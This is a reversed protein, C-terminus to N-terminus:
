QLLKVPIHNRKSAKWVKYLLSLSLNRVYVIDPVIKRNLYLGSAYEGTSENKINEIAYSWENQDAWCILDQNDSFQDHGYRDKICFYLAARHNEGFLEFMKELSKDGSDVYYVPDIVVRSDVFKLLSYGLCIGSDGAYQHWMNNDEFPANETFCSVAYGCRSKELNDMFMCIFRRPDSYYLRDVDFLLKKRKGKSRELSKISREIFLRICKYDEKSLSSPMFEFEDDFLQPNSAWILCKELADIEYLRDKSVHRYRYLMVGSQQTNYERLRAFRHADSDLPADLLLREKPIM